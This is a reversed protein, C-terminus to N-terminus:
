SSPHKRKGEAVLASLMRACSRANEARTASREDTLRLVGSRPDYRPGAVLAVWRAAADSLGAEGALDRLHVRLGVKRNIPHQQELSSSSASSNASGSRGGGGVEAAVTELVANTEWQVIRRKGGKVQEEEADLDIGAEAAAKSIAEFLPENHRSNDFFYPLSSRLDYLNAGAPVEHASDRLFDDLEACTEWSGAAARTPKRTRKRPAPAAAPTPSSSTSADTKKKSLSRPSHSFPRPFRCGNEDDEATKECAFAPLEGQDGGAPTESSFLRDWQLPPLVDGLLWPSVSPVGNGCSRSRRRLSAAIMRTLM